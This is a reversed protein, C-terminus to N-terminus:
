GLLDKFEREIGDTFEFLYLCSFAERAEHVADSVHDCRKMYFRLLKNFKHKYYLFHLYEPNTYWRILTRIIKFYQKLRSM